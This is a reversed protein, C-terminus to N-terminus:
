IPCTPPAIRLTYLNTMLSRPALSGLEGPILQNQKQTGANKGCPYYLDDSRSTTAGTASPTKESKAANMKRCFLAAIAQPPADADLWCRDDEELLCVDEADIVYHDDEPDHPNDGVSGESDSHQDVPDLESIRQFSRAGAAAKIAVLEQFNTRQVPEPRALPPITDKVTRKTGPPFCREKQM